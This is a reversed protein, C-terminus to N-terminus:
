RPCFCAWVEPDSPCLDENKEARYAGLSPCSYYCEQASYSCGVWLWEGGDPDGCGQTTLSSIFIFSLLGM